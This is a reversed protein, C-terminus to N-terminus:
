CSNRFRGRRFAPASQWSDNAPRHRLGPPVTRLITPTASMVRQPVRGIAPLQLCQPSRAATRPASAQYPRKNAPDHILELAHQASQAPPNFKMPKSARETMAIAANTNITILQYVVSKLIWWERPPGLLFKEAHTSCLVRLSVRGEIRSNSLLTQRAAVLRRTEAICLARGGTCQSDRPFDLAAM